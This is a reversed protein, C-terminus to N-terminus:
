IRVVADRRLEPSDYRRDQDESAARNDALDDESEKRDRNQEPDDGKDYQPFTPCLRDEPPKRDERRQELRDALVAEQEGGRGRDPGHHHNGAEGEVHDLRAEKAPIAKKAAIMM